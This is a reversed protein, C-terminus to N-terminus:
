ELHQGATESPGGAGHPRRQDTPRHNPNSAGARSRGRGRLDSAHDLDDFRSATVELHHPVVADDEVRVHPTTALPVQVSAARRPPTRPLSQPGRDLGVVEDSDAEVGVMDLRVPLGIRATVGPEAPQPGVECAGVGIDVLRDVQQERVVVGVGPQAVGDDVLPHHSPDAVDIPALHEPRGLQARPRVDGVQSVVVGCQDDVDRGRHNSGVGPRARRAVVVCM